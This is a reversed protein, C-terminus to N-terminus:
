MENKCVEYTSRDQVVKTGRAKDLSVVWKQVAPHLSVVYLVSKHRPFAVVKLDFGRRVLWQM